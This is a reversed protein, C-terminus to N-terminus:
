KGRYIEDITLFKPRCHSISVGRDTQEIHTNYADVMKQCNDYGIIPGYVATEAPEGEWSFLALVVYWVLFTGDPLPM